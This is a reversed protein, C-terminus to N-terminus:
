CLTVMFVAHTPVEARVDQPSSSRYPPGVPHFYWKIHLFGMVGSIVPKQAWRTTPCEIEWHIHVLPPQKVHVTWLGWIIQGANKSGTTNNKQKCMDGSQPNLQTMKGNLLKENKNFVLIYNIQLLYRWIPTEMFPPVGLRWGLIIVLKTPFCMPKHPFGVMKPLGWIFHRLVRLYSDEGVDLSEKGRLFPRFRLSGGFRM